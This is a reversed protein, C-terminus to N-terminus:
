CECTLQGTMEGSCSSPFIRHFTQNVTYPIQPRLQGIYLLYFNVITTSETIDKMYAVYNIKYLAYIM